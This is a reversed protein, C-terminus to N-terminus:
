FLKLQGRVSQHSILLNSTRCGNIGTGRAAISSIFVIRGWNNKKMGEVVRKVLIFSATLNIKLTYEFEELSIDRKEM